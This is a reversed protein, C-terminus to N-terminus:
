EQIIVISKGSELVTSIHGQGDLDAALLIDGQSFIRTEGGSAKIEVKGTLYIIYQSRPANHWNFTAGPVLSV